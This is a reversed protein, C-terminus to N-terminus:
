LIKAIAQQTAQLQKARLEQEQPTRAYRLPDLQNSLSRNLRQIYPLAKPGYWLKSFRMLYGLRQKM